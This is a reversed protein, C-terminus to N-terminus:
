ASVERKGVLTRAQQQLDHLLSLAQLPTIQCIDLGLLQHALVTATKETDMSATTQDNDKESSWVRRFEDSPTAATGVIFVCRALPIPRDGITDSNLSFSV